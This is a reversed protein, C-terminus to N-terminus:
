YNKKKKKAAELNRQHYNPANDQVVKEVLHAIPTYYQCGFSPHYNLIQSLCNTVLLYISIFLHRFLLLMCKALIFDFVNSSTFVFNPPLQPENNFLEIQKMASSLDNLV